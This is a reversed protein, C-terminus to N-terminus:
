ARHDAGTRGAARDNHSLTRVRLHGAPDFARFGPDDVGAAPHEPVGRFHPVPDSQLFDVVCLILPYWPSSLKKARSEEAAAKAQDYRGLYQDCYM